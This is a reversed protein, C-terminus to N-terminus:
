KSIIKVIEGFFIRHYDKLPYIKNDFSADDMNEPKVDAHLVKKCVIIKESQEFAVSKEVSFPTLHSLAVKDVENGHLTGCLSLAKEMTKPLFSATFYENENFFEYSYRTDRVYVILSPKSWFVGFNGWGATMTNFKNLSGATILFGKKIEDFKPFEFDKFEVNKFNNIM